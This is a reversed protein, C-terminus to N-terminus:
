LGKRGGPGQRTFRKRKQSIYEYIYGKKRKTIYLTLM